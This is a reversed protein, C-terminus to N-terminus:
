WRGRAPNSGYDRAAQVAMSPHEVKYRRYLIDLEQRAWNIDFTSDSGEVQHAAAILCELLYIQVADNDLIVIDDDSTTRTLWTGATNKILYKSYYKLDFNKGISFIINDVRIDSIAADINVTLKCSNITAPDVTGTETATSWPVKVLNWGVKFASGDAQTTITVGTWYKTTLNNGWIPIWGNFNALDTSNKIKFWFFKDAVEDEDTLDVADITTNQIGDGSVAVDFRLSGSGSVYDIDDAVIGTTTGVADWTGNSTVSNMTNLTKGQRSRWNIRIIKSGESGEISVTKETIAKTLDFREALRRTAVDHSQRIAQPYLDIIKKFDSPLSYNYVDDHITNTLGADRMTDVPDIKGLMTNAAREFLAEIYRVRLLSGGHLMATLNEKVQTISIGM